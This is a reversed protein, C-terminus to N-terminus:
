GISIGMAVASFLEVHACNKCVLMVLPVWTDPTQSQSHFEFPAVLTQSAVWATVGCPCEASDYKAALWEGSRSTRSQASRCSPGVKQSIFNADFWDRV